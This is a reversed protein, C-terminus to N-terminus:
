INLLYPLQALQSSSLPSSFSYSSSVNTLTASTLSYNGSISKYVTVVYYATSASSFSIDLQYNFGNVVQKAAGILTGYQM